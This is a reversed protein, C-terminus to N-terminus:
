CFGCTGACYTKFYSQYRGSCGGFSAPNQCITNPNLSCNPCADGCYASWSSLCKDGWQQNTYYGTFDSVSCSSWKSPADGYSMIGKGNCSGSDGGHKADFDHSMGFNHGMEHAVVMGTESETNRYENFSTKIYDNCAGGVWALGVTGYYSSDKGFACYLDVKKDGDDKGIQSWTDLYDTSPYNANKYITESKDYKFQIKTPLSSHRYHAQVHTMVSDVWTNFTTGISSLQNKLTNDYGFKIYAYRESPWTMAAGTKATVEAELEMLLDEEEDGMGDGDEEFEEDVECKSGGERNKLPFKGSLETQTKFPNEQATVQGDFGLEYTTARTNVDSLLTIHMKDGAKNMCGTVALSSDVNKLSGIFNCPSESYPELVMEHTEGNELTVSMEPINSRSYGSIEFTPLGQPAAFTSAVGVLLIFNKMTFSEFIAKQTSSIIICRSLILSHNRHRDTLSQHTYGM